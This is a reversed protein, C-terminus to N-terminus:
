SSHTSLGSQQNRKRRFSMVFALSTLWAPPKNVLTCCDITHAPKKLINEMCRAEYPEFFSINLLYMEEEEEEKISGGAV